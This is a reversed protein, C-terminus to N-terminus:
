STVGTRRSMTRPSDGVLQGAWLIQSTIANQNISKKWGTWAFGEKSGSVFMPDHDIEYLFLHTENLLYLNGSTCNDDAIIPVGRFHIANVGLNLAVGGEGQGVAMLQSPTRGIDVNVTPTILREILSWVAPTTVGLTPHDSGIQAADYDAALNAFTLAGSQATLTSRM